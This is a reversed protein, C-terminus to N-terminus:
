KSRIADPFPLLLLEPRGRKMIKMMERNILNVDCDNKRLVEVMAEEAVESASFVVHIEEWPALNHHTPLPIKGSKKVATIKKSNSLVRQM